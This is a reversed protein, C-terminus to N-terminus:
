SELAKLAEIVAWFGERQEDTLEQWEDISFMNDADMDGDEGVYAFTIGSTDADVAVLGSDPQESAARLDYEEVMREFEDFTSADLTKKGSEERADWYEKSTWSLAAEGRDNRILEVREVGGSEGGECSYWIAYLNKGPVLEVAPANGRGSTCASLWPLAAFGIVTHLKIFTRRTLM